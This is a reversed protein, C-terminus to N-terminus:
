RLRDVGGCRTHRLVLAARDIETLEKYAEAAPPWFEVFRRFETM